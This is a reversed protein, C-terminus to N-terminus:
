PATQHMIWHRNCECAEITDPALSYRSDSIMNKGSSFCRECEASMAPISLADFAFRTLDPWKKAHEKWYDILLTATSQCDDPLPLRKEQLYEEYQDLSHDEEDDESDNIRWNYLVSDRYNGERRVSKISQQGRDPHNRKRSSAQIAQTPKYTKWLRRMNDQAQDFWEPKDIWNKKCWRWKITPNLIMGAIFWTSEDTLGYYQSLKTHARNTCETIFGTAPDDGTRPPLDDLITPLDPLDISEFTSNLPFRTQLDSLENSLAEIIPICEGMQGFEGYEAQGQLAQTANEFHVLAGALYLLIYWDDENLQMENNFDDKYTYSCFLNIQQRLRLARKIMQYISNWRTSNDRKPILETAECEDSGRKFAQRRQPTRLIFVLTYHLKGIPGCLQWLKVSNDEEGREARVLAQEFMEQKEGLIFAQAVLNIIHGMCRLRRTKHENKAWKYTKGLMEVATDNSSANDLIFCGLRPQIEYEQVVQQVSAAINEGSHPGLINRFALLVSAVKYDSTVFHAVIANFAYHNNSTWLDFSLHINSLAKQLLNKVRAKRKHYSRITWDRVTNHSSPLIHPVLNSAAALVAIFFENEVISFAIHVCCIFAVLAEEFKHRHIAKRDAEALPRSEVTAPTHQQLREVISMQQTTPKTEYLNHTRLHNRIHESGHVMYSQFTKCRSCVWVRPNKGARPRNQIEFETGHQWYWGTRSKGKDKKVLIEIYLTGDLAKHTRPEYPTDVLTPADISDIDIPNSKLGLDQEVRNLLATSPTESVLSSVETPTPGLSPPTLVM